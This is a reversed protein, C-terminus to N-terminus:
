PKVRRLALGPVTRVFWAAYRLWDVARGIERGLRHAQSRPAEKRTNSMATIESGFEGCTHIVPPFIQRAPVGHLWSRDLFNDIPLRWVESAALLRRATERTVVYGQTGSCRAFGTPEEIVRDSIREVALTSKRLLTMLRVFGHRAVVPGLAALVAPFDDFLEIDDELVVAAPLDREVVISWFRRHSGFCGIEGPGLPRHFLSPPNRGAIEESAARGDVAPLREFAIGLRGLREGMAALRELSRDLNILFVPLDTM